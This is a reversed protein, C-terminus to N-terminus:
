AGVWMSPMEVTYAGEDPGVEQVIFTGPANDASAASVGEPFTEYTGLVHGDRIAVFCHGYRGYLDPMERMFWEFDRRQEESLM